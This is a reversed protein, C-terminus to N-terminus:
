FDANEYEDRIEQFKHEIQQAITSDEEHTKTKAKHSHHAQTM